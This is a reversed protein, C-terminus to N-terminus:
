LHFQYDFYALSSAGKPQAVFVLLNKVADSSLEKEASVNSLGQPLVYPNILWKRKKKFRM